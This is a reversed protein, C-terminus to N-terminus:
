IDITEPEQEHPLILGQDKADSILKKLNAGTPEGHEELLKMLMAQTSTFYPSANMPDDPGLSLMQVVVNRSKQGANVKDEHYRMASEIFKLCEIRDKAATKVHMAISAACEIRSSRSALGCNMIQRDQELIYQEYEERNPKYSFFDHWKYITFEHKRQGTGDEKFFKDNFAKTGQKRRVGSWKLEFLVDRQEPTYPENVKVPKGM